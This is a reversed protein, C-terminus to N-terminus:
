QPLHHNGPSVWITYWTEATLAVVDASNILLATRVAIGLSKLAKESIPGLQVPRLMNCMHPLSEPTWLM